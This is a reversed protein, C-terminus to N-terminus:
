HRQLGSRCIVPDDGDGPANGTQGESQVRRGLAPDVVILEADHPVEFTFLERPVSEPTPYDVSYEYKMSKCGCRYGTVLHTKADFWYTRPPPFKADPSQLLKLHAEPDFSHIPWDGDKDPDALYQFVVKEVEKGDRREKESVRTAKNLEGRVFFEGRRAIQLLGVATRHSSLYGPPIESQSPSASVTKEAVDWYFRWRPTQVVVIALRSGRRVELRWGFDRVTWGEEIRMEPGDKAQGRPLSHVLRWHCAPVRDLWVNPMVATVKAQGSREAPVAGAENTEPIDLGLSEATVEDTHLDGYIVQYKGGDLPWRVLVKNKDRPGVTKGFYAADPTELLIGYLGTFGTEAKLLRDHQRSRIQGMSGSGRMGMKKRMEDSLVGPYVTTVRPYHGDFFETSSRLGTVIMEVLKDRSPPTRRREVYGAPIAADFLTADLEEPWRINTLRMTAPVGQTEFAYEVEVLLESKQDVWVRVPWSGYDPDIRAMAIESGRATGDGIQQKGLDRDAQGTLQRLKQLNMFPLLLQRATPLREFTKSKHDIGIGPGSTSVITTGVLEGGHFSDTRVKGSADYYMTTTERSSTAEPMETVMTAVWSEARSASAAAEEMAAVSGGRMSAWPMLLTLALVGLTIREKM